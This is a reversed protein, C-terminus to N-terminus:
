VLMCVFCMCVFERFAHMCICSAYLAATKVLQACDCLMHVGAAQMFHLQACALIRRRHQMRVGAAQTRHLQVGACWAHELHVQRPRRNRRRVVRPM